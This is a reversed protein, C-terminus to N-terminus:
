GADNEEEPTRRIMIPGDGAGKVLHVAAIADSRRLYGEGSAAVQEGNGAVLRWRWERKADRYVDFHTAAM